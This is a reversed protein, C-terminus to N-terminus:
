RQFNMAKVLKPINEAIKVEFIGEEESESKEIENLRIHQIKEKETHKNTQWM